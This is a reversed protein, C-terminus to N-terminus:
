MSSNFPLILKFRISNFAWMDVMFFPLGISNDVPFVMYKQLFSTIAVPKPADTGLGRPTSCSFSHSFIM